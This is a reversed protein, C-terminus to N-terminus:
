MNEQISVVSALKELLRPMSGDAKFGSNCQVPKGNTTHHVETGPRYMMQAACSRHDCQTASAHAIWPKLSHLFRCGELGYLVLAFSDLETWPTSCAITNDLLGCSIAINEHQHMVPQACAAMDICLSSAFQACCTPRGQLIKDNAQVTSKCFYRRRLHSLALKPTTCLLM